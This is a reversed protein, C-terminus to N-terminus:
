EAVVPNTLTGIGEVTITEGTPKWEPLAWLLLTLLGLLAALWPLRDLRAPSADPFSAAPSLTADLRSM